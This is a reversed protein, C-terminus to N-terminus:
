HKFAIGLCSSLMSTLIIISYYIFSIDSPVFLKYILSIIIFFLSFKIGALYGKSTSKSGVLFGGIFIGAIVIGLRLFSDVYANFLNFYSFISLIVLSVLIISISIFCSFFYKKM